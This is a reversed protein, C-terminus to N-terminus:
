KRLIRLVNLSARFKCVKADLTEIHDGDRSLSEEILRLHEGSDEETEFAILSLRAAACCYYASM